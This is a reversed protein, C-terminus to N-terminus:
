KTLRLNSLALTINEFAALLKAPDSAEFYNAPSSACNRIMNKTATDTIQFAVTYVEIGDAKINGCLSVTAADAAPRSGANHLPGAGTLSVTNDGDTMLVMARRTILAGNNPTADTFPIGPSLVHWGVSLGAPIYTNDSATLGAISSTVSGKNNTLRVIPKSCGINMLGPLKASSFNGDTTNNPPPRSGVCGQWTQSSCSTNPVTKTTCGTPTTKTCPYSVTDYKTCTYPAGDNYCTAPQPNVNKTCTGTYSISGTCTTVNKTGTTCSTTDAPVSVGPLNRNALGINVYRAFPVVGIKVTNGVMLKNALDTAATKLTTIKTGSMSGTTDLVLVVDLSKAESVVEVNVNVELSSVGVIGMFTTYVKSTGSVRVGPAPQTVSTVTLGTVSGIEKGPYNAYLFKSALQSKEQDSLGVTSAVALGAADLAEGLRNRATMAQSIDISAGVALLVPVILLAFTVAIQGAENRSFAQLLRGALAAFQRRM